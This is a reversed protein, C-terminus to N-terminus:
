GSTSRALRPPASDAHAATAAIDLADVIATDCRGGEARIDAAVAELPEQARGAVFVRAGERARAVAGGIAGGGGYILANKEELFM